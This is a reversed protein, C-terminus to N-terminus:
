VEKSEATIKIALLHALKRITEPPPYTPTGVLSKAREVAEPRVDATNRLAQELAATAKFDVGPEVAKPPREAPPPAQVERVKAANANFKIEM